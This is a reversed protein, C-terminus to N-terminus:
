GRFNPYYEESEISSASFKRGPNLHKSNPPSSSPQKVRVEAESYFSIKAAKGVCQYMGSYEYMASEIMLFYTKTDAKFTKQPILQSLKKRLHLWKVGTDSICYMTISQGFYVEQYGPTLKSEDRILVTLKSQASFKLGDKIGLCEYSGENYYEAARVTIKKDNSDPIVNEPLPKDEFLWLPILDSTCEFSASDHQFMTMSPPRILRQDLVVLLAKDNFLLYPDIKGYCEYLGADHLSAKIRLKNGFVQSDRPLTGTAAHLWKPPDMSDCFFDTYVGINAKSLRPIIRKEKRTIVFLMSYGSIERDKGDNGRCEYVGRDSRSIAKLMLTSDETELIQGNHKWVVPLRLYCQITGKSGEYLTQNSPIIIDKLNGGVFVSFHILLSNRVTLVLTLYM